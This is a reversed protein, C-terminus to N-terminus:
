KAVLQKEKYWQTDTATKVAYKNGGDDHGLMTIIGTDGFPTKVEQDIDFAYKVTKM